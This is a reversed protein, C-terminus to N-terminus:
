SHVLQSGNEIKTKQNINHCHTEFTAHMFYSPHHPLQNAAARELPFRFFFLKILLKVTINMTMAICDFTLLLYTFKIHKHIIDDDDVPQLVGSSSMPRAKSLLNQDKISALWIHWGPQRHTNYLICTLTIFFYNLSGQKRKLPTPSLLAVQRYTFVKALFCSCSLFLLHTAKSSKELNLFSTTRPESLGM